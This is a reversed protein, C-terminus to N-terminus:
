STNGELIVGRCELDVSAPNPKGTGVEPPGGFSSEFHSRYVIESRRSCVGLKISILLWLFHVEAYAGNETDFAFPILEIQCRRQKLEANILVIVGLSLVLFAHYASPAHVEWYYFAQSDGPILWVGM